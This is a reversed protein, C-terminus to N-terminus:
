SRLLVTLGQDDLRSFALFELTAPVPRTANHGCTRFHETKYLFQENEYVQDPFNDMFGQGAPLEATPM